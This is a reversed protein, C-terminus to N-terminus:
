EEPPSELQSVRKELSMLSIGHWACVFGLVVCALALRLEISM